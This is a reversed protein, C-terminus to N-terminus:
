LEGDCKEKLVQAKALATLTQERIRGARHKAIVLLGNM